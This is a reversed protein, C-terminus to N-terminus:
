VAKGPECKVPVLPRGTLVCLLKPAVRNMVWYIALCVSVVLVPAILYIAVLSFDTPPATVKMMMRKVLTLMPDHTALIFFGVQRLFAYNRETGPKKNEIIRAIIDATFITGVVFGIRDLWIFYSNDRLWMNAALIIPYLIYIGISYKRFLPLFDVKNISFWAGATFLAISEVAFAQGPVFLWGIMMVVPAVWRGWKIIWAILPSILSLVILNRIYWFQHLIPTGNGGEWDGMDWFARVFDMFRYDRVALNHGSLFGSLYPISEIIFYLALILGNWLFYPLILSYREKKIKQAYPKGNLFFLYGSIFLFTPVATQAIELSLLFSVFRYVPFHDLDIMGRTSSYAHILVVYMIFLFRLVDITKSQTDNYRM